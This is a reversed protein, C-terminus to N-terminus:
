KGAPAPLTAEAPMGIHLRGDPNNVRLKVAYVLQARANRTQANKPTFEAQSSIWSVTGEIKTDPLADVVVPLSQGLQVRDLDPAELYIRLELSALDAVRLGLAGPTAVEGPELGRVLVTGAIPSLVVGEQIQRDYVALSSALETEQAELVALQDHASAVQSAAVDRQTTAEDLQQRTASGQSVLAEVRKLTTVALDQKHRALKLMDEAQARQATITARTAATRDRELRLVDTDLVILTDGRAVSDGEDARVDLVRGSILPAVDVVTTELTGSPNPGGNGSCAPLVLAVGLALTALITERIRAPMTTTMRAEPHNQTHEPYHNNM